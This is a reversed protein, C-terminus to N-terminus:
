KNNFEMLVINEKGTLGLGCIKNVEDITLSELEFFNFTSNILRGYKDSIIFKNPEFSSMLANGYFSM